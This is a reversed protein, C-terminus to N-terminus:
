SKQDSGCHPCYEADVPIDSDCQQCTTVFTSGCQPCYTADDASTLLYNPTECEPCTVKDSVSQEDKYVKTGSRAIVDLATNAAEAATPYKRQEALESPTRTPGPKPDTVTGDRIAELEEAVPRVASQDAEAINRLTRTAKARVLESDDSLADALAPVFLSLQSPRTSSYQVFVEAAAERQFWSGSRLYGQIRSLEGQVMDPQNAATQALVAFLDKPHPQGHDRDRATAIPPVPTLASVVVEEAAIEPYTDCIKVLEKLALHRNDAGPSEIIDILHAAGRVAFREDSEGFNGIAETLELRIGAKPESQLRNCITEVVNAVLKRSVPAHSWDPDQAETSPTPPTTRNSFKRLVGGAAERIGPDSDSIYTTVTMISETAVGASSLSALKWDVVVKLTELATQTQDTPTDRRLVRALAKLESETLKEDRQKAKEALTDLQIM